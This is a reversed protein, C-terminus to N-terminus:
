QRVAIQEQLGPLRTQFQGLLEGIQAAQTETLGLFAAVVAPPLCQDASSPPPAEIQNAKVQPPLFSLVTLFVTAALRKM